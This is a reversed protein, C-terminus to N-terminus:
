LDRKLPYIPTEQIVSLGAGQGLKLLETNIGTDVQRDTVGQWLFM